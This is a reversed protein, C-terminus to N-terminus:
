LNNEGVYGGIEIWSSQYEMGLMRNENLLLTKVFGSLCIKRLLIRSSASNFISCEMCSGKHRQIQTKRSKLNRLKMAKSHIDMIMNDGNAQGQCPRCSVQQPLQLNKLAAM